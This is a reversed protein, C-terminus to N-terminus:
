SYQADSPYVTHLGKTGGGVILFQKLEAEVALIETNKIKANVNSDARTKYFSKIAIRREM